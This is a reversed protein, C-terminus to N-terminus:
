YAQLFHSPSSPACATFIAGTGPRLDDGLADTIRNGQCNLGGPLAIMQDLNEKVLYSGTRNRLHILGSHL